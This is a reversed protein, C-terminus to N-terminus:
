VCKGELNSPRSRFLAEGFILPVVGSNGWSCCVTTARGEDTNSDLQFTPLLFYKSILYLCLCNGIALFPVTLSSRTLSGATKIMSTGLFMPLLISFTTKSLARVTDQTLYEKKVCAAGICGAVGLEAMALGAARFAVATTGGPLAAQIGTNLSVM